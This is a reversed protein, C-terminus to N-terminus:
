CAYKRSSFHAVNTLGLFQSDFLVNTFQFPDIYDPIWDIRAIDFAADARSIRNFLAPPPLGKIEVDLGIQKLNRKVRGENAPGTRRPFQSRNIGYKRVLGRAPDFHLPPPAFGWDANGSEVKDLSVGFQADLTIDFRDVHHPRRGGYFRNRELRIRQGRVYEAVYYPGSGPFSAIGEPDSPLTPPVACFFPMTTRAPVDPVSRKLRIVLRNGSIVVGAPTARKGQLVAEAGVIDRAYQVAPSNVGPALIRSIARAFADARVPTRDSFRFGPRITFTFGECGELRPSPVSRGRARAPARGAAAQRSLEDAARLRRRAGDL